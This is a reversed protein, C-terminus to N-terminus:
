ERYEKGENQLNHKIKLICEEMLGVKIINALIREYQLGAKRCKEMGIQTCIGGPTKERYSTNEQLFFSWANRMTKKLCNM